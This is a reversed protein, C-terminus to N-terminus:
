FTYWGWSGMNGTTAINAPWWDSGVYFSSGGPYLGFIDARDGNMYLPVCRGPSAVFTSAYGREPFVAYSAYTGWSCLQYTGTSGGANAPTTASLTFTLLGATALAAAVRGIVRRVSSSRM